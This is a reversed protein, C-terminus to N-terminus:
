IYHVSSSPRYSHQRHPIRLHIPTFVSLRPLRGWIKSPIRYSYLYGLYSPVGADGVESECRSSMTFVRHADLGVVAM